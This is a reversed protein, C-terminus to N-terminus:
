PMAALAKEFSLEEALSDGDRFITAVARKRGQSFYSVRCDRERPSGDLAVRDFDAAHGVYALSVDYQQTWFFPVIDCRERRGLMNRAVIKGQREAVVWHEIRLREGSLRDPWCAIDGAAFIGPASTELFADVLVGNGVSLGAATALSTEPIVGVGCVVLDAPLREQNALMVERDTISAVGTGLHFTVGHEEHLEQLFKGLDAGLVREMPVREPAVVSVVAGRTSLAAAAELGIFSAGIVVVHRHEGAGAIIRRCDALSRLTLVHPLKAGPVELRRAQAGTALLIADFAHRSGDALRLARGRADLGAVPKGLAITIKHERYFEASRLTVWEEPASGALFDKSLNPRDCPLDADASFLDIEGGYGEARLAEAAANGAAGGGVIAVRKLSPTARREPARRPLKERVFIRGEKQEVRYCAVPDLAPPRLPDGTRLSFCAHHWPCRVTDGVKLGEALPGQYHTCVAGIAFVEDGHRALLVAEGGFQGALLGNDPLDSVAVGQALDPGHDGETAEAM